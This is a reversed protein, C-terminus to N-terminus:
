WKRAWPNDGILSPVFSLYERVAAAVEEFSEGALRIICGDEAVPSAGTLLRAGKDVPSSSITSLVRSAHPAVLPGALVIVCLVNFRGIRSELPRDPGASDDAELATSDLVILRGGLHVELRSSYRAFRWREGSARRGSSLCDMFVLSAGPQLRIRQEQRYISSAFGVVPDPLIALLGGTSVSADLEYSTGRPTQQAHYVKTSAQTSLMAAAGPGVTVDLSVDDGDVLGGGLSAAYIWAAGGHNRPNLLRLPSAAFARTVVSRQPGEGGSDNRRVVAVSGRGSSRSGPMTQWDCQAVADSKM